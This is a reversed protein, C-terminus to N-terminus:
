ASGFAEAPLERTGAAIADVITGAVVRPDLGTPMRPATGAIPRTALGTETHPPRADLVRIGRRRLERGLAASAASLGAAKLFRRRNLM